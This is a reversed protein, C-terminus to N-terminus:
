QGARVEYVKVKGEATDAVYLLRTQADWVLGQPSGLAGGEAIRRTNEDGIVDTILYDEEDFVLVAGDFADAVMVRGVGDVM